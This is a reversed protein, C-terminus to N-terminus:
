KKKSKKQNKKTNRKSKRKSKCSKRGGKKNIRGYKSATGPRATKPRNDTPREILRTAPPVYDKRMTLSPLTTINKKLMNTDLLLKDSTKSSPAKDLSPLIIKKSM